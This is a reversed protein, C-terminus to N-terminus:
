SSCSLELSAAWAPPLGRYPRHRDDDAFPESLAARLRAVESYDGHRAQEIATQAMHNRLVITPNAANQRAIRASEGTAEAHLRERWRRAWDDFASRDIFLDRVTHDPHPAEALVDPLANHLNSLDRFFRTFDVKNDHLAKFTFEYFQDDNAQHETFGLKASLRQRFARNFHNTFESLCAYVKNDDAPTLPRLVHALVHLNWDAIGPQMDYAYRGQTDSHNCVYDHKFADIFAFPGYDITLGLISMNDTNMVGHCFGVSQWAAVLEATRRVVEGLLALAPDTATSLEPYYNRLVFDLLSRLADYQKTFFFYEFHGFRIFSPAVRTVIAATEPTERVVTDSAGVIALSRTTPIGLGHMAEACLYERISSRLVARGDGMRSFPTRGAGKLQIEWIGFPNSPDSEGQANAITLARGDGLRPVRVGFQHGAYVAAYPVFDQGVANGALLSTLDALEVGAPPWALFISLEHNLDILQAHNNLPTPLVDAIFDKGLSRYDPAATM